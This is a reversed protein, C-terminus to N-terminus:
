KKRPKLDQMGIGIHKMIDECVANFREHIDENSYRLVTNGLMKMDDDRKKDAERHEPLKHQRGDIEIVLDASSIYFDVIYNGINKQRNVTMPLRKLFDYWLHKEEPTMNKRLDQANSVLSKNYNYKM